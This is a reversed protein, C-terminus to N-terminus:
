IQIESLLTYHSFLQNDKSVSILQISFSFEYRDLENHNAKAIAKDVLGTMHKAKTTDRMLCAAALKESSQHFSLSIQV